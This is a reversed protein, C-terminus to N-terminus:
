LTNYTYDLSSEPMRAKILQNADFAVIHKMGDPWTIVISDHGLSMLIEKINGCFYGNEDVKDSIFDEAEENLLDIIMPIAPSESDERLYSARTYYPNESRVKYARVKGYQGADDANDSLYVGAGFLGSSSPMIVKESSGRFLILDKGKHDKIVPKKM